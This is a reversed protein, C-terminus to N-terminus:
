DANTERLAKRRMTPTDVCPDSDIQVAETFPVTGLLQRNEGEIEVFSAINIHGQKLESSMLDRIGLIAATRADALDAYEQGTEDESFGSGNCVRLYYRPM